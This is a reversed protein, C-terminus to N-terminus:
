QEQEKRRNKLKNEIVYKNHPLDLVSLLTEGKFIYIKRNYIKISDARKNRLTIKNLYSSLNGSVETQNIGFKLAKEAIREVSKKSGGVKRLTRNEGGRTLKM